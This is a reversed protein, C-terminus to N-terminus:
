LDLKNTKKETLLTLYVSGKVTLLGIITGIMSISPELAAIFLIVATLMYRLMYQSMAYNQAKKPPMKVSKKVSLDMLRLRLISFITGFALGKVWVLPEGVFFLGIIGALVSIGVMQLILRKM